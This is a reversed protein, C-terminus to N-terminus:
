ITNIDFFAKPEEVGTSKNNKLVLVTARAFALGVDM